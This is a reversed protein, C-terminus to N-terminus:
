NLSNLFEPAWSPLDKGDIVINSSRLLMSTILRDRNRIAWYLPPKVRDSAANVNIGPVTLLLKVVRPHTLRVAETLATKGRENVYNVDVNTKDLLAQVVKVGGIRCATHLPPWWGEDSDNVNIGPISLLQEIIPWSGHLPYDTIASCLLKSINSIIKNLLVEEDKAKLLIDKVANADRVRVACYLTDVINDTNIKM